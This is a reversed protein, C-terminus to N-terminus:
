ERDGTLGSAIVNDQKDFVVKAVVFMRERVGPAPLRFRLDRYRLVTKDNEEVKEVLPFEAFWRFTKIADTAEAKALLENDHFQVFTDNRAGDVWHLAAGDDRVITWRVPNM